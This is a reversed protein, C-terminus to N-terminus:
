EPLKHFIRYEFSTMEAEYVSKFLEQIGKMRDGATCINLLYQRGPCLELSSKRSGEASRFRRYAKVRGENKSFNDEQLNCLSMGRCFVGNKAHGACVVGFMQKDRKRHLYYFQVNDPDILGKKTRNM